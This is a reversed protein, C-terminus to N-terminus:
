AFVFILRNIETLRKLRENPSMNETLLELLSPMNGDGRKGEAHFRYKWLHCSISLKAKM